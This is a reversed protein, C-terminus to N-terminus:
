NATTSPHYQRITPNSVLILRNAEQMKFSALYGQAHRARSMIEASAERYHRRVPGVPAPVGACGSAAARRDARADWEAVTAAAM